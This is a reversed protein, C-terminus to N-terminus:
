ARRLLSATELELKGARSKRLSIHTKSFESENGFNPCNKRQLYDNILDIEAWTSLNMESTLVIKVLQLYDNILDIEAWTSLNTESTLVIKALRLYNNILDIETWTSLNSESTLVIKALWM